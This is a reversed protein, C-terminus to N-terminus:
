TFRLILHTYPRRSLETLITVPKPSSPRPEIQPL